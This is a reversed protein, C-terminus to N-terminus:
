LVSVLLAGFIFLIQAPGKQREKRITPTLFDVSYFDAMEFNYFIQHPKLQLFVNNYKGM